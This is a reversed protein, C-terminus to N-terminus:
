VCLGHNGVLLRDEHCRGVEGLRSEIPVDFHTQEHLIARERSADRAVETGKDITPQEAWQRRRLRLGWRASPTGWGAVHHGFSSPAVALPSIQHTRTPLASTPAFLLMVRSLSRRGRSLREVPPLSPAPFSARGKGSV